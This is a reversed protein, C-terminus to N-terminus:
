SSPVNSDISDVWDSVSAKVWRERTKPFIFGPLKRHVATKVNFLPAGVVKLGSLISFKFFERMSRVISPDFHIAHEDQTQEIGAINGWYDQNDTPHPVVYTSLNFAKKAVLSIHMDEGCRWNHTLAEPAMHAWFAHLVKRPMFWTNHLYIVKKINANKHGMWGYHELRNNKFNVILGSAGYIGPQKKYSAICNEIYRKGPIIDDDMVCVFDTKANLAFTFRGWVGYDHSTDAYEVGAQELLAYDPCYNKDSSKLNFYLIKEVPYSQEKISQLQKALTHQRKFGNLVITVTKM